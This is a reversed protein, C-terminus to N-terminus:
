SLFFGTRYWQWIDINILIAQNSAELKIIDMHPKQNQSILAELSKGMGLSTGAIRPKWVAGLGSDIPLSIQYSTNM